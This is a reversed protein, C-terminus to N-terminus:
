QVVALLEEWFEDSPATPDSERFYNKGRWVIDNRTRSYIKKASEHHGGHDEGDPGISYLKFSHEDSRYVYSSGTFVDKPIPRRFPNKLKNLSSPYSGNDRRYREILLGLTALNLNTELYAQQRLDYMDFDAYPNNRQRVYEYYPAPEMDQAVEAIRVHRALLKPRENRRITKDMVWYVSDRVKRKHSNQTVASFLGGSSLYYKTEESWREAEFITERAYAMLYKERQYGHRTEILWQDIQANTLAGAPYLEELAFFLLMYTRRYERVRNSYVGPEGILSNAMRLGAIINQFARQDDGKAQWIAGDVYLMKAVNGFILRHNYNKENDLWETIPLYDHAYTVRRFEHLFSQAEQIFVVIDKHMEAPWDRLHRNGLQNCNIGWARTKVGELEAYQAMLQSWDEYALTAPQTPEATVQLLAPEEQPHDTRPQEPVRSKLSAIKADLERNKETQLISIYAALTFAIALLTLFVITLKKKM